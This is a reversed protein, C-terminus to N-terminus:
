RLESESFRLDFLFSMSKSKAWWSVCRPHSVLIYSKCRLQTRGASHIPMVYSAKPKDPPDLCLGVVVLVTIEGGVNGM